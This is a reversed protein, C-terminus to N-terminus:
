VQGNIVVKSGYPIVSPDVAITHNTTATVGTSTIGNAYPGCCISCPCYHTIKFVGLDVLNADSSAAIPTGVQVGNEETVKQEAEELADAFVGQGTSEHLTGADKDKDITDEETEAANQYEIRSWVKNVTGTQKVQDLELVEGIEEGDKRGPYDLVTADSKVEVEENTPEIQDTDSLMQNQIYGIIQNGDVECSVKSWGNDCVASRSLEDGLSVDALKETDEGPKSYIGADKATVYLTDQVAAVTVANGDGDETQFTQITKNDEKDAKTVAQYDQVAGYVSATQCILVIGVLIACAKKKM